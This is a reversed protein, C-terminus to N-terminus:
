QPGDSEALYAAWEAHEAGTPHGAASCVECGCMLDRTRLHHDRAVYSQQDVNQEVCEMSCFRMGNHEVPDAGLWGDCELCHLSLGLDDATCAFVRM